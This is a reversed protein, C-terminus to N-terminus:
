SNVVLMNILRKRERNGILILCHHNSFLKFVVSTLSYITVTEDWLDDPDFYNQTVAVASPVVKCERVEKHFFITPTAAKFSFKSTRGPNVDHQGAVFPLDLVSLAVMMETFNSTTEMFWMSLFSPPTLPVAEKTEGKKEDDKKKKEKKPKARKGEDVEQLCEPHVDFGCLGCHYSPALKDRISSHCIDCEWNNPAHPSTVLVLVHEHRADYVRPKLTYNYVHNAFDMWFWSDDVLSKAQDTSTSTINYYGREEYEKTAPPDRFLQRPAVEDAIAQAEFDGFSAIDASAGFAESAPMDMARDMERADDKRSRGRRSPAAGKKQKASEKKFVARDMQEDMDDLMMMQDRMEPMAKAVSSSSLMAHVPAGGFAGGRGGGGGGGPPPPPPAQAASRMPPLPISPASIKLELQGASNEGGGGGFTPCGFSYICLHPVSSV